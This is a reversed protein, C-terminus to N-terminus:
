RGTRPSTIACYTKPSREIKWYGLRQGHLTACSTREVEVANNTSGNTFAVQKPSGCKFTASPVECCATQAAHIDNTTASVKFTIKHSAFTNLYDSCRKRLEQASSKCNHQGIRLVPVKYQRRDRDIPLNNGDFLRRVVPREPSKLSISARRRSAKRLNLHTMRRHASGKPVPYYTLRPEEAAELIDGAATPAHITPPM